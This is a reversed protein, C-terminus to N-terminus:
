LTQRCHGKTFVAYEKDPISSAVTDLHQIDQRAPSKSGQLWAFFFDPLQHNVSKMLLKELQHRPRSKFGCPM